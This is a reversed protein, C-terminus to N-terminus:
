SLLYPCQAQGGMMHYSFFSEKLNKQSSCMHVHTCTHVYVGLLHLLNKTFTANFHAYTYTHTNLLIVLM